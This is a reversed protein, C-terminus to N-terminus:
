LRTYPNCHTYFTGIWNPAETPAIKAGVLGVLAQATKGPLHRGASLPGGPLSFWNQTPAELLDPYVRGAVDIHITLVSNRM